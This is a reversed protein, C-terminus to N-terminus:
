DIFLVDSTEALKKSTRTETECTNLIKVMDKFCSDKTKKGNYIRHTRNKVNKINNIFDRSSNSRLDKVRSEILFSGDAVFFEVYGGIIDKPFDMFIVVKISFLDHRFASTFLGFHIFEERHEDIFNTLVSYDRKQSM